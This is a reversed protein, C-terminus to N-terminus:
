ASRRTISRSTRRSSRRKEAKEKQIKEGFEKEENTMEDKLKAIEAKLLNAQEFDEHEAAKQMDVRKMLIVELKRLMDETNKIVEEAKDMRERGEAMQKVYNEADNSDVETWTSTGGRGSSSEADTANVTTNVTAKDSAMSSM